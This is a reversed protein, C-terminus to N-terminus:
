AAEEEQKRIQEELRRREANKLRILTIEELSPSQAAGNAFPSGLPTNFNASSFSAFSPVRKLVDGEAKFSSIPTVPTSDLGPFAPRGASKATSLPTGPALAHEATPSTSSGHRGFDPEKNSAWFVSEFLQWEDGTQRKADEVAAHAGVVSNYVVVGTGVLKKERRDGARQKKDKLLFANEVKGFRAFLAALRDRDMGEGAGERVWRVKVTRDIEPVDTGGRPRSEDAAAGDSRQGDTEADAREEEEPMGRSLMEEREKRRRKGDEALRRIERELREEADGEEGRKRKAGSERRELDEKMQRRRGEFAAHQRQKALRAARASDYLAKLEPNSLIDYGIQLLHFKELAAQDGPNKDPHYKLATKRYARRIDSESTEFAVGLLEYFDVSSTTHQKLDDNPM